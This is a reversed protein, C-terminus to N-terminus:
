SRPRDTAAVRAGGQHPHHPEAAHGGPLYVDAGSIFPLSAFAAIPASLDTQGDLKNDFAFLANLRKARPAIAPTLVNLGNVTLTDSQPGQDGWMEKYRTFILNATTPSKQRLLDLGTGPTQTLLRVLRDSRIFPEFYFHHTSGAWLVALEYHKNSRGFFPGWSGDAAVTFTAKPHHGKRLGTRGDVEWVQLTQGAAGVNSPFLQARGSLVVHRQPVLNTTKPPHGTFFRYMADFTEAATAVQVHSHDPQYVNTAGTISGGSNGEGWVALTPVGGPLSTSPFGDLNVYHAVKAARAPSSRLFGQSISTGLSHGVLEVKDAHSEALLRAILGDLDNWVDATTTSGFTSDYEEVAVDSARYGNSTFRMAQTEFQAGSGVFGHVFIVPRRPPSSRHAGAPVSDAITAGLLAVVAFTALFLKRKM